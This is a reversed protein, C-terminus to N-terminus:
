RSTLKVQPTTPPTVVVMDGTDLQQDAAAADADPTLLDRLLEPFDDMTPQNQIRPQEGAVWSSLPQGGMALIENRRRIYGPDSASVITSKVTNWQIEIRVDAVLRANAADANLNPHNWFWMLGYHPVETSAALFEATDIAPAEPYMDLDTGQALDNIRVTNPKVSVGTSAPETSIIRLLRSHPMRLWDTNDRLLLAGNSATAYDGDGNWRSASITGKDASVVPDTAVQDGHTVVNTVSHFSISMRVMKMWKFIDCMHAAESPFDAHSAVLTGTGNVALGAYLNLSLTGANNRISVGYATADFVAATNTINLELQYTRTSKGGEVVPGGMSFNRADMTGPIGNAWGRGEARRRSPLRHERRFAVAKAAAM